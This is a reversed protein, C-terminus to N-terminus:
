TIKSIIGEFLKQAGSAQNLVFLSGVGTILVVTVLEGINRRGVAVVVMLAALAFVISGAWAFIIKGLERGAKEASTGGGSGSGSTGSKGARPQAATVAQHRAM